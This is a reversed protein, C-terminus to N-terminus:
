CTPPCPGDERAKKSSVPLIAIGSVARLRELSPGPLTRKLAQAQQLPFGDRRVAMIAEGAQRAIGPLVNVDLDHM